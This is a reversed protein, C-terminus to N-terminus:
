LCLFPSSAGLTQKRFFTIYLLFGLFAFRGLIHTHLLFGLHRLWFHLHLTCLGLYCLSQSHSHSACGSPTFRSVKYYIRNDFPAFCDLIRAHAFYALHLCSAQPHSAVSFALAFILAQNLLAVWFALSCIRISRLSRTTM